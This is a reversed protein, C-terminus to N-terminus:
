VTTFCAIGARRCSLVLSLLDLSCSALDHIQNNKDCLKAEGLSRERMVSQGHGLDKRWDFWAAM